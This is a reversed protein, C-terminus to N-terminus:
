LPESLKMFLSRRMLRPCTLSRIARLRWTGRRLNPTAEGDRGHTEIWKIPRPLVPNLDREPDYNVRRDRASPKPPRTLLDVADSQIVECGSQLWPNQPCPMHALAPPNPALSLALAVFNAVAGVPWVCTVDLRRRRRTGSFGVARGVVVLHAIAAAATCRRGFAAASVAGATRLREAGGLAVHASDDAVAAREIELHELVGLDVLERLDRALILM